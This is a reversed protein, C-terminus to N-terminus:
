KFLFRPAINKIDQPTYTSTTETVRDKRTTKIRVSVEEKIELTDLTWNNPLVEKEKRYIVEDKSNTITIQSKIPYSENGWFFIGMKGEVLHEGRLEGIKCIKPVVEWTSSWEGPANITDFKASPFMKAVKVPYDTGASITIGRQSEIISPVVYEIWKGYYGIRECLNWYDDDNKALDFGDFANVSYGIMHVDVLYQHEKAWHGEKRTGYFLYDKFSTVDMKIAELENKDPFSTDYEVRFIKKHGLIKGIQCSIIFSNYIGAVHDTVGVLPYWNEFTGPDTMIYTYPLEYKQSELLHQPPPGVMFSDGYYFYYDVHKELGYSEHYKNIVLIKHDVFVGKLQSILENCADYREKTSLYSDVVILTDEM